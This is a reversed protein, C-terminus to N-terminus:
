GTSASPGDSAAAPVSAAQLSGTRPMGGPLDFVSIRRRMGAPTRHAHVDLRAAKGGREGRAHDREEAAREDDAAKGDKRKNLFRVQFM